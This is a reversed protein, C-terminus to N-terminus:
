RAARTAEFVTRAEVDERERFLCNGCYSPEDDGFRAMYEADPRVPPEDALDPDCQYFLCCSGRHQILVQAEGARAVWVDPTRKWPRGPRALFRKTVAQLEDPAVPEFASLRLLAAAATEAAQAWLGPHGLRAREGLAAVAGEGLGAITAIAATELRDHGGVARVGDRGAWAHGAAVSVPVDAIRVDGCYGGRIQLLELEEDSPHVLVGDRVVGVAIAAAMLGVAWGATFMAAARPPAGSQRRQADEIGAMADDAVAGEVTTWRGGACYGPYPAAVPRVRDAFWAPVDLHASLAGRLPRADITV